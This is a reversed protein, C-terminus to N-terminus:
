PTATTDLTPAHLYERILFNDFSITVQNGQGSRVFLGVAGEELSLDRSSFVEFGNIWFQFTDNMAKINLRNSSMPGSHIFPFTSPPVLSRSEGSLVRTMRSEGGCNLSYRYHELSENVRFLVGFEDGPQCIEARVEVELFFDSLMLDPALSFLFSQSQRVAIVLRDNSLSIAGLPKESLDWGLDVSFDDEFLVVGVGSLIDPTPSPSPQPIHTRTPPITPYAFTASPLVDTHAPVPTFTKTSTEISCGTISIVLGACLSTQWAFTYAFKPFRKRKKSRTLACNRNAILTM